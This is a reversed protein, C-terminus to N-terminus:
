EKPSLSVKKYRNDEKVLLGASKLRSLTVAVSGRNLQSQAVVEDVTLGQQGAQDLLANVTGAVDPRGQNKLIEIVADLEELRAQLTSIEKALINRRENLQKLTAAM